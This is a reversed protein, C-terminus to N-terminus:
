IFQCDSYRCSALACQFRIFMAANDLPYWNVAQNVYFGGLNVPDIRRAIENMSEGQSLFYNVIRQYDAIMQENQKRGLDIHKRVELLLEEFVQHDEENLIDIFPFREENRLSKTM